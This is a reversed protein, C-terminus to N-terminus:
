RFRSIEKKLTHNYELMTNMADPCRLGVDVNKCLYFVFKCHRKLNFSPWIPPAGNGYMRNDLMSRHHDPPPLAKLPRQTAM